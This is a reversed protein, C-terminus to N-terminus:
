GATDPACLGIRVTAGAVAAVANTASPFAAFFSDGETTVETGGNTRISSPIIQSQRDLLDAYGDAMLTLIRTSGEIDTFLFTVTGTAAEARVRGRCGFRPSM